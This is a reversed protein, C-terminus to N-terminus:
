RAEIFRRPPGELRAVSIKVETLEREVASLRADFRSELSEFRADVQAFRLDMHNVLHSIMWAFGGLVAVLLTAASAVITIVEISM